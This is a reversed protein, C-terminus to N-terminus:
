KAADKLYAILDDIQAPKKLGSFRMTTGPVSKKPNALFAKITEDNWVLGSAKLPDSFKKFGQATGATRGFLGALSPGIKNKGADLSHCAKCKNFVKKGSTADGAAMATGGINALAVIVGVALATTLKM